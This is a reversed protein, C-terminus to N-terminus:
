DRYNKPSVLPLAKGLGSGVSGMQIGLQGWNVHMPKLVHMAKYREVHRLIAFFRGASLPVRGRRVKHLWVNARLALPCAPKRRSWQQLWTAVQRAEHGHLPHYKTPLVAPRTVTNLNSM